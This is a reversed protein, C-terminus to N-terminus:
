KLGQSSEALYYSVKLLRIGLFLLVLHLHFQKLLCPIFDLCEKSSMFPVTLFSAIFYADLFFFSVFLHLSSIRINFLVSDSVFLVSLISIIIFLTRSFFLSSSFIVSMINFPNIRLNFAFM